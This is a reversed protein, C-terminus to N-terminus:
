PLVNVGVQIMGHYLNTSINEWSLSQHQSDGMICILASQRAHHLNASINEWSVSQHQHEGM